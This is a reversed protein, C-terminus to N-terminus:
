STILTDALTPTGSTSPLQVGMRSIGFFREFLSQWSAAYTAGGRDNTSALSWGDDIVFPISGSFVAIGFGGPYAVPETMAMHDLEVNAGTFATSARVRVSVTTPMVRPTRFWVQVAAWSSGISGHNVTLENATAADDNIVTGSGDILEVKLVGASLVGTRKIWLNVAYALLPELTVAQTLAPTGGAAFVAASGVYGSAQQTVTGTVTWTGITVGSWTDFGGNTLIGANAADVATGSVSTGSGSAWDWDTVGATAPLGRYSYPESGATATGSQADGTIKLLATEGVILEGEIGDPRVISVALVGDGTNSLATPTVACANKKVTTPGVKLQKVLELMCDEVSAPTTPVDARVQEILTTQAVSIASSVLPHTNRVQQIEQEPLNGLLRYDNPYNDYIAEFNTRVGAQYENWRNLAKGIRGLRTFLGGTGTFTIAV